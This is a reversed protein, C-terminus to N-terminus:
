CDTNFTLSLLLTISSFRVSSGYLYAILYCMSRGSLYPGRGHWSRKNSSLSRTSPGHSSAQGRGGYTTKLNAGSAVRISM